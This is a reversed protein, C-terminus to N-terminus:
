GVHVPPRRDHWPMDKELLSALRILRDERGFPAVLQIGIPLGSESQALPLSIAPEGSINFAATFPGFEFISELWSSLTHSPDDYRLTGHPIPLQALTPTILLDHDSFFAGTARCITNAVDFGAQLELVSLQAAEDLLALSVAALNDKSPAKPSKAMMSAFFATSLPVYTRLVDEGHLSPGAPELIHGMRELRRALTQVAASVEPAVPVGSWAETVLGIRLRGLDRDLEEVYPRPPDPAGYKEGLAYGSVADLLHATDRVSRTLVFEHGFGYVAEGVFPGVPVRGRTPKLGIVGCCSAPVRISGAGDNGHAAPVAAAAVLAAAGGSSGGSGRAVDWPNRTIGHLRSETAFSIAMEPANTLGLMRLGAARFRKTVLADAPAVAGEFLRTGIDFPVGQAYPGANKLLFPVGSLPGGAASQLPTDFLPMVLANLRGDVSEIAARAATEVEAASVAGETILRRLGVADQAAYEQVNM